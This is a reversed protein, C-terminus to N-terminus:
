IASPLPILEALWSAFCRVTGTLENIQAKTDEINRDQQLSFVFSLSQGALKVVGLREGAQSVLKSRTDGVEWNLKATEKKAEELQSHLRSIEDDKEKNSKQLADAREEYYKVRGSNIHNEKEVLLKKEDAKYLLNRMAQNKESLSWYNYTLVMIVVLLAILIFTPTRSSRIM